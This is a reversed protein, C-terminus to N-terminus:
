LVEAVVFTSGGVFVLDGPGANKIAEKYAETVGHYSKGNLGYHVGLNKLKVADMGRPINAKCFYYVADAPLLKLINEPDKDDVTGFVFHLREYSLRSLQEMNVRIGDENHGIDCIVRPSRALEQWRGTIGTLEKVEKMGTKIDEM